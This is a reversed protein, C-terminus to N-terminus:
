NLQIPVKPRCIVNIAYVNPNDSRLVFPVAVVENTSCIPSLLTAPIAMRLNKQYVDRVVQSITQAKEMADRKTIGKTVILNYFELDYDKAGANDLSDRGFSISQRIPTKSSYVLIVPAVSIDPSQDIAPEQAIVNTVLSDAENPNPVRLTTNALLMEVGRNIFDNLDITTSFSM